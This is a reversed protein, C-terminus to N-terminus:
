LTQRHQGDVARRPRAEHEPQSVAGRAVPSQANDRGVARAVAMRIVPPVQREHSRCLVEDREDISQPDLPKGNDADRAASRVCDRDGCCNLLAHSQEREDRRDAGNGFAALLDAHRSHMAENKSFHSPRRLGAGGEEPRKAAHHSPHRADGISGQLLAHGARILVHQSPGLHLGVKLCRDALPKTGADLARELIQSQEARRPARGSASISTGATIHCPLSSM